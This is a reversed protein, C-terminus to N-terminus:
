LVLMRESHLYSGSTDTDDAELAARGMAMITAVAGDIKDPARQRDPAMNLNVDRRPVVNAFNWTLVPNNFHFNGKMYQREFFEMAPHFSRPGQIFEVMPYGDAVLRNSLDVAQWKDFAISKPIFKKFIDTVDKEIVAYDVVDGETMKIFGSECWKRYPVTKREDRQKVAEEPVWYWVFAYYKGDKFFVLVLSTLDKTAGLDLAAWCKCGVFQDVKIDKECAILRQMDIWAKAASARRNLRKIRFEGLKGPQHKAELALKRNEDLLLNNVHMLPNAKQWKSEDFDDDDEDVAFIVALYHDAEIAGELIAEAFKRTEPWPGPTEYGETTTFLWLPNARAGAASLLVNMLDHDQHAHLEDLNICSPNLGDQTSAKANIPKYVGGVKSRAIFNAQARLGFKGSLLAGSMDVMRKAIGWVIRAQSGTTAASIIQPGNEEELCLIALQIAAALTSKANKRAVAYLATTFRRGGAFNRFGFLQVIFWVAFPELTINPTSWKGEVHPLSEIFSCFKCAEEEDFTFPAVGDVIRQNDKEFRAAALRIWKGFLLGSTDAMVEANYSRAIAVYNKTGSYDKHLVTKKALIRKAKTLLKEDATKKPRGSKAKPKKRNSKTFNRLEAL